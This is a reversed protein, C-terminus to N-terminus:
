SKKKRTGQRESGTSREKGGRARVSAKRACAYAQPTSVILYPQAKTRRAEEGSCTGHWLEVLLKSRKQGSSTQGKKKLAKDQSRTGEARKEKAASRMSSGLCSFSTSPATTRARHRSYTTNCQVKKRPRDVSVARRHNKKKGDSAAM